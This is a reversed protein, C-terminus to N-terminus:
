TTSAASPSRRCGGSPSGLATVLWLGWTRAGLPRAAPGTVPESPQIHGTIGTIGAIGAVPRRVPPSTM